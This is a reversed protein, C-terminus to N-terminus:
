NSLRVPLRGLVILFCSFILGADCLTRALTGQVGGFFQCLLPLRPDEHFGVNSHCIECILEPKCRMKSSGETYGKNRKIKRRLVVVLPVTKKGPAYTRREFVSTKEWLSYDPCDLDHCFCPKAPPFAVAAATGLIFLFPLAPSVM